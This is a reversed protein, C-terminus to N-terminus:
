RLRKQDNAGKASKCPCRLLGDETRLGNRSGARSEAWLANRSEEKERDPERDGKEPLAKM